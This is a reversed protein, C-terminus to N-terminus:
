HTSLYYIEEYSLARNYLYIDDIKGKHLRQNNLFVGILLPSTNDVTIIDPSASNIPVNIGNIYIKLHNDIKTILFHNWNPFSLIPFENQNFINVGFYDLYNQYIISIGSIYVELGFNGRYSPANSSSDIFFGKSFISYVSNASQSTAWFSISFDGNFQNLSNSNPVSIFDDIGDFQYARNLLGFRDSTLTAGSVSGNNANVSVDNANGNFPYHAILGQQLQNSSYAFTSTSVLSQWATGKYIQVGGDIGCDTCYIMLGQAPNQIQNRQILTMRPPLFGQSTSKIELASSSDPTTTGIGINQSHAFSYSFLSIIFLKNM